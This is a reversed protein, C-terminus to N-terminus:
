ASRHGRPVPTGYRLAYYTGIDRANGIFKHGNVDEIGCDDFRPSDDHLILTPANQYNEGLLNTIALRPRDIPVYIINLSDKIAPFYSLLGWM